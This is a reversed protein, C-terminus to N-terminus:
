QCRKGSRVKGPRSFASTSTPDSRPQDPEPVEVVELFCRAEVPNENGRAVATFRRALIKIAEQISGANLKVVNWRHRSSTPLHRRVFFCRLVPPKSPNGQACTPIPQWPAFSWDDNCKVVVDDCDITHGVQPCTPSIVTSGGIAMIHEHLQVVKKAIL